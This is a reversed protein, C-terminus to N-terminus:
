ARCSLSGEIAGDAPPELGGRSEQALSSADSAPVEGGPQGRLHQLAEEALSWDAASLVITSTGTYVEIRHDVLFEIERVIAGDVSPLETYPLQKGEFSYEAYNRQCAPYSRIQLPPLCGANPEPRCDGYVYAFYNSTAEDALAGSDCRRAAESMPVGAVDPGASFVEFNIPDSAGTCPLAEHRAVREQTSVWRPGVRDEVLVAGANKASGTERGPASRAQATRAADDSVQDSAGDEDGAGLGGQASANRAQATGSVDESGRDGPGDDDRALLALTGGAIM